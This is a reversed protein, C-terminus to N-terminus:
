LDWGKYHNKRLEKIIIEVNDKMEQEEGIYITNVYIKKLKGFNTVKYHGVIECNYIIYVVDDKWRRVVQYIRGNIRRFLPEMGIVGFM